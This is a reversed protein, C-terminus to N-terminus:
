AVARSYPRQIVTVHSTIQTTVYLNYMSVVPKNSSVTVRTFSLGTREDSLASWIFFGKVPRVFFFSRTKLGWMPTEYRSVTPRLM